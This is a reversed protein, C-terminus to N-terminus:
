GSVILRDLPIDGVKWGRPNFHFPADLHTGGHEAAAFKKALMYFPDEEHVVESLNFEPMGFWYITKEDFGHSLDVTRNLASCAQIIFVVGLFRM